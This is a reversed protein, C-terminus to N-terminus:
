GRVGREARQGRAHLTSSEQISVGEVLGYDIPITANGTITIFLGGDEVFKTFNAIGQLGMGGRMDDTTDPAGGLNPTIASAKFPIPDGAM